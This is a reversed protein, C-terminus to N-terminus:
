STTGIEYTVTRKAVIKSSCQNTGAKKLRGHLRSTFRGSEHLGRYRGTAKRVVFTGREVISFRCTRLNPGSYTIGQVHRRVIIRGHPFTITARKRIFHGSAAFAGHATVSAHRPGPMVDVIRFVERGAYAPGTGARQHAQHAQAASAGAATQILGGALAALLAALAAPRRTRPM